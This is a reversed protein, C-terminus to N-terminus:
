SDSSQSRSAESDMQRRDTGRDTESPEPLTSAETMGNLKALDVILGAHKFATQNNASGTEHELLNM